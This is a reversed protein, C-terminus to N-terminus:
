ENGEFAFKIQTNNVKMFNAYIKSKYKFAYYYRKFCM